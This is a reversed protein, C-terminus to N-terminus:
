AGNGGDASPASTLFSTVAGAFGDPDEWFLLDLSREYCAIARRHDGLQHHIYGLSDWTASEWNREGAERSGALARECYVIAEGATDGARRAADLGVRCVTAQDSWFGRRLL